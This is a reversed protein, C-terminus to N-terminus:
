RVCWTVVVMMTALGTTLMESQISTALRISLLLPERKGQVKRDSLGVAVTVWPAQLSTPLPPLQLLPRQRRRLPLRQGKRGAAGM